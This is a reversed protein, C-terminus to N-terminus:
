GIQVSLMSLSASVIGEVPTSIVEEGDWTGLIPLIPLFHEPSPNSLQGDERELGTTLPHPQEHSRLNAYVFKEFSIAWPYPEAHSNQWDMARLNHVVNGSGMILVGQERLVALKKGLEYHWSAPKTGDISLQVVPIDAQPYMRVLIEWTGHDLGWEEKDQHIPEPSLLEAVQKALEPSGPAPYEIQYLAEPFGGFDHITKPKVMATIATGRTYWHASIVLIARPRPLTTGLKEWAETYSNHNIANMPSGHGIFVAPMRHTLHQNNTSM